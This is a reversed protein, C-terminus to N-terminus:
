INEKFIYKKAAKMIKPTNYLLDPLYVRESMMHLDKGWPGLNISPIQLKAMLDLPITYNSGWLSMNPEIFGIVESVDALSAYSMDSIGTYFNKVMLEQNFEERVYKQLNSELHAIDIDLDKINDLIVHPYYPPALAVVVVPNTHKLRNVLFESLFGTARPMDIENNSIKENIDTLYEEWSSLFEEGQEEELQAFLESFLYVTNDWVETADYRYHNFYAKRYRDLSENFATKSIDKIQTLLKEPSSSFTLINMYAYANEALSVDYSKKGDRLYLCTPGPTKEGQYDDCLDQNLEISSVIDAAIAIPNLGQYVNGVHARVGRVFITPMIKGISGRYLVPQNDDLRVHTESDILLKYNLNYEDKLRALLKVAQRMGASLTEEDPVSLFLLSGSEENHIHDEMIALQVAAGGKMDATGRGFMWDGSALDELCEENLGLKKIDKVLKRPYISLDRLEKYDWTDVTDYHNVMVITNTNDKDLFLGWAVARKLSDNEVFELGCMDKNASFYNIKKISDLMVQGMAQEQVTATESRVNVLSYTIELIRDALSM